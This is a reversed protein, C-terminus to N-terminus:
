SAMRPATEANAVTNMECGVSWEASCLCSCCNLPSFFEFIRMNKVEARSYSLKQTHETKGSCFAFLEAEFMKIQAFSHVQLNCVFVTIIFKMCSIATNEVLFALLRIQAAAPRLSEERRTKLSPCSKTHNPPSSSDNTNM